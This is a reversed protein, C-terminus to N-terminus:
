RSAQGEAIFVSNPKKGAVMVEQQPNLIRDSKVIEVGRAYCINVIDSPLLSEDLRGEKEVAIAVKRLWTLAPSSMRLLEETDSPHRFDAISPSTSTFESM